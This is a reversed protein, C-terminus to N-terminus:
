SQSYDAAGPLILGETTSAPDTFVEANLSIVTKQGHYLNKTFDEYDLHSRPVFTSYLM